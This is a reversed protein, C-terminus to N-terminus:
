TMNQRCRGVGWGEGSGGRGGDKTGTETPLPYHHIGMTRSNQPKVVIMESWVKTFLAKGIGKLPVMQKWGSDQSIGVTHPFSSGNEKELRSLLMLMPRRKGGTELSVNGM